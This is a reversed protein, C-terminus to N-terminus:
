EHICNRDSMGFQKFKVMNEFSTNHIM